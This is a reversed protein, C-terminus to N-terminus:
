VDFGEPKQSDKRRLLEIEVQEETVPELSGGGELASSERDILFAQVRARLEDLLIRQEELKRALGQREDRITKMRGDIRELLRAKPLLLKLAYRALDEREGRLALAADRDFRARDAETREREADLRKAEADLAALAAQKKYVATEADRLHQKLLLEPEELADVIGNADARFTLSLREFFNM